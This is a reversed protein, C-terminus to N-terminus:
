YAGRRGLVSAPTHWLIRLDWWLSWSAVYSYDLRELEHFPLDNRGSIQWLGTMGPRVDYRRAAWGNIEASESVVFPRPGVLSMNGVLVNFLQPLEDISTQRLLRGVVTVRPDSHIKFLPGDVENTAALRSRWAESGAVMTRFKWIHFVQGSRGTRAQKFIVPGRSTVKVAVAVALFLPALVLLLFSSVAVDLARKSVRASRGLAAPAVDVVPLGALDDVHSRVTLLDFMRPVVSIQVQDALSRLLSAVRSENVPSFAVVVHDVDHEIILRPVDSLGGLLPRGSAGIVELHSANDDVCGVVTLGPAAAIRQVVGSAVVGSGIVLVRSHRSRRAAGRALMRALPVFLLALVGALLTCRTAPPAWGLWTQLMHGAGIVLLVGLTASHVLRALDPFSSGVLRRRSRRYLGYAAMVGLFVPTYLVARWAAHSEAALPGRHLLQALALSAGIAVIDAPVIFRLVSPRTRSSETVHRHLVPPSPSPVAATAAEPFGSPGNRLAEVETVAVATARKEDPSHWRQGASRRGRSAGPEARLGEEAQGSRTLMSDPAAALLTSIALRFDSFRHRPFWASHVGHFAGTFFPCGPWIDTLVFPAQAYDVFHGSLLSLPTIPNLGGRDESLTSTLM